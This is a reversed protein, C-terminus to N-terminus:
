CVRVIVRGEIGNESAIKPYQVNESLFKIMAENGGPFEPQEEVVVFTEDESKSKSDEKKQTTKSTILIVGDKGEDGYSTTASADKLVSISEIDTPSLEDMFSTGKGKVEGDIIILPNTITSGDKEVTIVKSKDDNNLTAAIGTKKTTILMVGNKGEEGYVDTSSKKKLVSISEINEPKIQSADFDKGMKVGDIIYLPRQASDLNFLSGKPMDKMDGGDIGIVKVSNQDNNDKIGIVKISKKDKKQLENNQAYISNAAILFMAIPLALIYKALKKVPTRKGNMMMIRQKLQSVNFNNVLQINGRPYTLHLLHYQYDRRDIGKDLVGSDAIYELNIAMEKKVIWFFPNYWFLVTLVEMMTIDISHWQKVHVQEHILIQKLKEDSHAEPYIFIWKFFSFPTSKERM